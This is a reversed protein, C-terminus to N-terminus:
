SSVMFGELTVKERDALSLRQHAMWVQIQDDLRFVLLMPYPIARMIIEALRRLGKKQDLRVELVEIEPYERTDDQYSQIPIFETKLCYKWIIKEVSAALLTKDAKSLDANELFMKKAITKDVSCPDPIHLAEYFSM